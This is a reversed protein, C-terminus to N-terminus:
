AVVVDLVHDGVGQGARGAAGVLVHQLQEGRVGAVAAADAAEEGGGADGGGLEAGAHRQAAEGAESSDNWGGGGCVRDRFVADTGAPRFPRRRSSTPTGSKHSSLTIRTESHGVTDM